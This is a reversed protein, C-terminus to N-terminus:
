EGHESTRFCGPHTGVASLAPPSCAPDRELWDIHWDSGRKHPLETGSDEFGGLRQFAFGERKVTRRWSNETDRLARITTNQLTIWPSDPEEDVDDTNKWDVDSDPTGLRLEGGVRAGTRDLNALEVGRVDIDTGIHSYIMKVTTFEAHRMFLSQGIPISDLALPGRFTSQIISIQGGVKGARLIVNQFEAEERMFLHRGVTISDMGLEKSRPIIWARQEVAATHLFDVVEVGSALRNEDPRVVSVILPSAATQPFSADPIRRRGSCSRKLERLTTRVPPIPRRRDASQRDIRQRRGKQAYLEHDFRRPRCLTNGLTARDAGRCFVLAQQRFATSNKPAVAFPVAGSIACTDELQELAILHPDDKDFHIRNDVDAPVIFQAGAALPAVLFSRHDAVPLSCDAGHFLGM